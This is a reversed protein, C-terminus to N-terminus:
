NAFKSVFTEGGTPTEKETKSEAVATEIKATEDAKDIAAEKADQLAQAKQLELLKVRSPVDEIRKWAGQWRPQMLADAQLVGEDGESTIFRTGTQGHLYVGPPNIPRGDGNKETSQGKSLQTADM